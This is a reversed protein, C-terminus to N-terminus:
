GEEGMFWPETYKKKVTSSVPLSKWSPLSALNVSRNGWTEIGDSPNSLLMMQPFHKDSKHHKKTVYIHWSIGWLIEVHEIQNREFKSYIAAPQLFALKKKPPIGSNGKFLKSNTAKQKEKYKRAGLWVCLGGSDRHQATVFRQRCLNVHLTDVGKTLHFVFQLSSKLCPVSISIMLTPNCIMDVLLYYNITEIFCGWRTSVPLISSTM